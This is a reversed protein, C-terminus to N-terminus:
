KGRKRKMVEEILAAVKLRMEDWATETGYQLQADEALFEVVHGEYEEFPITLARQHAETLIKETLGEVLFGLLDESPTDRVLSHLDFVDRAQAERRGGLADIKQRVAAEYVYRRVAVPAIGYPAFIQQDPTEIVSKDGDHRGRFSVEIKTPHRIEGPMIVGFKYRFTTPTDKNPGDGPDLGRIGIRKLKQLFPRSNFIGKICNRIAQSAEPIGDLDIDESYRVSGFFLRLNVGGKIIVADGGRVEALEHLILLHVAERAAVPSLVPPAM